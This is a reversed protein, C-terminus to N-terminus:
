ATSEPIVMANVTARLDRHERQMAKERRQSAEAALIQTNIRFITAQLHDATTKLGRINAIDIANQGYNNTVEIDIGKDILWYAIKRQSVRLAIMLVSEGDQNRASPSARHELLLHCLGENGHRAALMMTSLGDKARDRANARHQLLYQVMDMRNISCAYLLVTWGKRDAEQLPAKKSLFHKVLKFDGLFAAHLMPTRSDNSRASLSAGVEILHKVVRLNGNRCAHMLATFGKEDKAEIYARADTLFRVLELSGEINERAAIMLATHGRKDKANFDVGDSVQDVVAVFDCRQVTELFATTCDRECYRLRDEAGAPDYEHGFWRSKFVPGPPESPTVPAHGSMQESQNRLRDCAASGLSFCTGGVDGAGPGECLQRPWLPANGRCTGCVVVFGSPPAHRHGM